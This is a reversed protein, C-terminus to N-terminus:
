LEEEEETLAEARKKWWIRMKLKTEMKQAQAKELREKEEKKDLEAFWAEVEKETKGDLTVVVAKKEEDHKCDEHNGDFHKWWEQHEAQSQKVAKLHMNREDIYKQPIAEGREEKKEVYRKLRELELLHLATAEEEKQSWLIYDHRQREHGGTVIDGKPITSATKKYAAPAEARLYAYLQAILETTPKEVVQTKYCLKTTGHLHYTSCFIDQTEPYLSEKYKGDKREAILAKVRENLDDPYPVGNANQDTMIDVLLRRFPQDDDDDLQNIHSIIIPPFELVTENDCHEGYIECVKNVVMDMVLDCRMTIAFEYMTRCTLLDWVFPRINVADERMVGLVGKSNAGQEPVPFIYDNRPLGNGPCPAIAGIFGRVINPDVTKLDIEAEKEEEFIKCYKFLAAESVTFAVGNESFSALDPGFVNFAARVRDRICDVYTYQIADEEERQAQAQQEEALLFEEETEEPEEPENAQTLRVTEERQFDMPDEEQDSEYAALDEQLSTVRYFADHEPLCQSVLQSNAQAQQALVATKGAKPRHPTAALRGSRPSVPAIVSSRNLFPFNAADLGLGMLRAKDGQSIFEWPVVLNQEEFWTPGHKHFPRSVGQHCTVQRGRENYSEMCKQNGWGLFLREHIIIRMTEPVSSSTTELPTRTVYLNRKGVEQLYAALAQANSAPPAYPNNALDDARVNTVKVKKPAPADKTTAEDALYEDHGRKASTAGDEEM